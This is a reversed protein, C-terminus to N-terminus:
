EDVPVWIIRVSSEEPEEFGQFDLDEETPEDGAWGPVFFICREEAEGTGDDKVVGRVAGEWERKVEEWMTRWEMREKQTELYVKAQIATEQAEIAHIERVDEDNLRGTIGGPEPSNKTRALQCVARAASNLEALRLRFERTNDALRAKLFTEREHTLSLTCDLCRAPTSLYQKIQVNNIQTTSHNDLGAPVIEERSGTIDLDQIAATLTTPSASKTIETRLVPPIRAPRPTPPTTHACKPFYILTNAPISSSTVSAKQAFASLNTNSPLGSTTSPSSPSAVSNSRNRTRTSLSRVLKKMKNEM